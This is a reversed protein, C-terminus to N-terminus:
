YVPPRNFTLAMTSIGSNNLAVTYAVIRWWEDKGTPFHRSPESYLHVDDGIQFSGLPMPAYDTPLTVTPVTVPKGYMQISGNAIAQLQPATSVKSYQLVQEMLIPQGAGGIAYPARAEAWPQINGSGGGVVIIHNGSATADKPWTWDFASQLDIFLNSTASSQGARPAAIVFNHQPAGSVFAHQMYYDVGGTGPTIAATMDAIIQAVTTRQTKPYTPTINAPTGTVQLRTGIGLNAGTQTQVDAIVNQMLTVPSISTIYDKTTVVQTFWSPMAKGSVVLDNSASALTTHWAIGAYLILTNENATILIKFETDGLGLIVATLSKAQPDVLSLKFQFEGADNLRVSYTADTVELETILTNANIDWASVRYTQV